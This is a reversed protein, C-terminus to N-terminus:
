ESSRQSQLHALYCRTVPSDPDLKDAIGGLRPLEAEQVPEPPPGTPQMRNLEARGQLLVVSVKTFFEKEMFANVSELIEGSRLSLEQLAMTDEAGISLVADKHGVPSGLSAVDEGVADEWSKWLATLRAQDEGGWKAFVAFLAESSAVLRKEREAGFAFRKASSSKPRSRDNM